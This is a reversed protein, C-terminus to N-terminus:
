GAKMIYKYEKWLRNFTKLCYFSARQSLLYKFVTKFSTTRKPFDEDRFADRAFQGEISSSELKESILWVYFSPQKRM